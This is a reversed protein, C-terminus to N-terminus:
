QSGKPQNYIPSADCCKSVVATQRDTGKTGWFEYAGIGIDITKPEFPKRCASCLRDYSSPECRGSGFRHPFPYASCYCPRPRSRAPKM